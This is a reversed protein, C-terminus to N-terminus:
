RPQRPPAALLSIAATFIGNKYGYRYEGDYREAIGSLIRTGYGRGETPKRAPEDSPNTLKIFLYDGDAVSTLSIIPRGGSDAKRCATIANDLLNGFISCLHMQEIQLNEPINLTLELTIGAAACEQAKESLLANVVPISSYPNEQTGAIEQAVSDILEHALTDEGSRVLQTISVLQNNFDHRIKALEDRRREVENYHSKEMDMKHQIDRLEKEYASKRDRFSAYVGLIVDLLVALFFAILWLSIDNMSTYTSGFIAIFFLIIIFCLHAFLKKLLPVPGRFFFLIIFPFAILGSVSILTYATSGAIFLLKTLPISTLCVAIIAAQWFKPRGPLLKAALFLLLVNSLASLTISLVIDM